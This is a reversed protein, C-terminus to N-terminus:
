RCGALVDVDESTPWAVLEEEVEQRLVKFDVQQMAQVVTVLIAVTSDAAEAEAEVVALSPSVWATPASSLESLAM